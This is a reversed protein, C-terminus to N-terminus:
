QSSFYCLTGRNISEVRIVLLFAMWLCLGISIVAICLDCTDTMRITAGSSARVLIKSRVQRIVNEFPCVSRCVMLGLLLRTTLWVSRIVYDQSRVLGDVKSGLYAPVADDLYRARDLTSVSGDLWAM